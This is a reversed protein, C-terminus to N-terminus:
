SGAPESSDEVLQIRAQVGESAARVWARAEDPQPPLAEAARCFAAGVATATSAAHWVERGAALQAWFAGAYANGAGTPDAVAVDAIPVRALSPSGDHHPSYVYSGHAGDRVALVSAPPMALAHFLSSVLATLAADDTRVRHLDDAPVDAPRLTSAPQTASPTLTAAAHLCLATPLDPSCLAALSTLERLNTVTTPTVAHAVPEVGVCLPPAGAAERAAYAERVCVVEGAGDGEVLVHVADVPPLPPVWACLDDWQDWGVPEFLMREGEYRIREGPTSTVHTLKTVGETDVDYGAMPALLGHDFDLGVPALLEVRHGSATCLAAGVAAQVGGGGPRQVGAILDVIIKSVVAIRM